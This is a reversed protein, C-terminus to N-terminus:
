PQGPAFRLTWAVERSLPSKIVARVLGNSVNGTISVGVAADAASVAARVLSWVAAPARAVVRLEYADDAVVASIGSLTRAPVDWVERKVEIIGQTVHRSTSILFPRPL